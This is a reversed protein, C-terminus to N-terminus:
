IQLPIRNSPQGLVHDARILAHWLAQSLVLLLLAFIGSEAAMGVWVGIKDSPRGQRRLCGWLLLVGILLCPAGYVSPIGVAELGARLWADAGNRIEEPAAGGSYHLGIEYIALLPLVFLVCAWPHRTATWYTDM